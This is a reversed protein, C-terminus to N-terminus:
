ILIHESVEKAFQKFDILNNQLLLYIHELNIELYDHVLINRLGAM